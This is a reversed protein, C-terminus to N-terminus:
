FDYLVLAVCAAILGFLGAVVIIGLSIPATDKM